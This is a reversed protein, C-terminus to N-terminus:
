RAQASLLAIDPNGAIYVNTFYFWFDSNYHDPTRHIMCQMGLFLDEWPLMNCVVHYLSEHRVRIYLKNIGHEKDQSHAEYSAKLEDATMIQVKAMEQTFDVFIGSGLPEFDDAAPQLFLYLNGQWRANAFYEQLDSIGRDAYAEKMRAIYPRTYAANSEYLPEEQVTSKKVIEGSLFELHDYKLPNVCTVDLSLEDDLREIIDDPSNKKNHNLYLVDRDAIEHMFGAYPIYNKPKAANVANVVGVVEAELNSDVRAVKQDWDINDFCLPYASVGGAFSTLLVDPNQPLIYGNLQKSDVTTLASFDGATVYLGSDDRFDGSKLISFQINTGEIGFARNFECATVNKFGWALLLSEASRSEFDPVIIPTEHDLHKLTEEQLHDGHNHSFYVLSASQLLDIADAKPYGPLHWWGTCFCPGLYWPDTVLRFDGVELMISAHSVFRLTVPTPVKDWEPMTLGEQKRAFSLIGNEVRFDMPTKCVDVNAYRMGTFDLKWGHLPCRASKSGPELILKGGMHDCSRSVVWSVEGQDMLEFFVDPTTHVGPDMDGIPISIEREEAYIPHLPGLDLFRLKSM